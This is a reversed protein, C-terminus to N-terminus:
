SANSIKTEKPACKKQIYKYLYNIKKYSTLKSLLVDRLEGEPMGYEDLQEELWDDLDDKELAYLKSILETDKTKVADDILGYFYDM